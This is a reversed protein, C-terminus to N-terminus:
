RATRCIKNMAKGSAIRVEALRDAASAMLIEESKSIPIIRGMIKSIRAIKERARKSYYPVGIEASVNIIGAANIVHDPAFLIGRWHLAERDEDTRLQNNATEAVVRCKLRPSTDENLM